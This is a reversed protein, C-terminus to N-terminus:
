AGKDCCEQALLSGDAAHVDSTLSLGAVLAAVSVAATRALNKRLTMM